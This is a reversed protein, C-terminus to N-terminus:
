DRQKNYVDYFNYGLILLSGVVDTIGVIDGLVFSGLIFSFVTRLYSISNIEILNLNSLSIQLLLLGTYNIIGSFFCFFIYWFNLITYLEGNIFFFIIGIIINNICMYYLQINGDMKENIMVKTAVWTLSYFLTHLAGFFCGILIRLLNNSLDSDIKVEENINSDSISKSHKDNLIILLAGILCVIIGILYRIRFEEKLFIVSLFIIFVPAFTTFCIM